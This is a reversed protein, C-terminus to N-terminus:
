AGQKDANFHSIHSGVAAVEPNGQLYTFQKSLRSPIAVDDADLFAVFEARANLLGANRAAVVGANAQRRISVRPDDVFSDAIKVSEDTSGDDVIILEFDGFDQALISEIAEKLYREGNWVPIVVSVQPQGM